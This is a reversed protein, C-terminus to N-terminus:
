ARHEVAGAAHGASPVTRRGVGADGTCASRARQHAVSCECNALADAGRQPQRPRGASDFLRGRRVTGRRGRAAADRHLRADEPRGLDRWDRRVAIPMEPGGGDGVACRACRAGRRPHPGPESAGASPRTRKRPDGDPGAGVAIAQRDGAAGAPVGGLRRRAPARRVARVPYSRVGRALAM